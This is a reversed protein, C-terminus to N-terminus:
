TSESWYTTLLSREREPLHGFLQPDERRNLAGVFGWVRFGLFRDGFGLLASMETKSRMSGLGEAIHCTVLFSPIKVAICLESTRRM